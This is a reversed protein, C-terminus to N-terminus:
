AVHNLFRRKCTGRTIIYQLLSLEDGRGPPRMRIKFVGILLVFTTLVLPARVYDLKFSAVHVGHREHVHDTKSHDSLFDISHNGAQEVPHAHGDGTSSALPDGPSQGDPFLRGVASWFLGDVDINEVVTTANEVPLPLVVHEALVVVVVLLLLSKM